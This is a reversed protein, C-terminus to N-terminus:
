TGGDWGDTSPPSTCWTRIHCRLVASVTTNTASLCKQPSVLRLTSNASAVTTPPQSSAPRRSPTSPSPRSPAPTSKSIASTPSSEGTKMKKTLNHTSFASIELRSPPATLISHTHTNSRSNRRVKDGAFILQKDVVPHFALHYIREPCIKIDPTM